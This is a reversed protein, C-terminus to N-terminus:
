CENDVSTPQVLLCNADGQCMCRLLAGRERRIELSCSVLLLTSSHQLGELSYLLDISRNVLNNSTQRSVVTGNPSADWGDMWGDRWENMRLQLLRQGGGVVLELEMKIWYKTLLQGRERMTLGALELAFSPLADGGLRM